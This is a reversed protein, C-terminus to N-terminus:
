LPLFTCPREKMTDLVSNMATHGLLLLSEIEYLQWVQYMVFPVYIDFLM